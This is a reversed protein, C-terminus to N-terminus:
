GMGAIWTFLEEAAPSPESEMYLAMGARGQRNLLGRCYSGPVFHVPQVANRNMPGKRRGWGPDYERSTTAPMRTRGDVGRKSSEESRHFRNELIVADEICGCNICRLIPL